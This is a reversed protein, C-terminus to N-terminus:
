HRPKATLRGNDYWLLGNQLCSDLVAQPFSSPDGMGYRSVEHEECYRNYIKNIQNLRTNWERLFPDNMIEQKREPSMEFSLQGMQASLVEKM